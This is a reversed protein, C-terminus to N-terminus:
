RTGRQEPNCAATGPLPVLCRDGSQAGLLDNLLSPLKAAPRVPPTPKPQLQAPRAPTPRPTRISPATPRHLEVPVAGHLRLKDGPHIRDNTLRNLTKLEGVDTRATTAIQSLTQGTRVTHYDPRRHAPPPAVEKEQKAAPTTPPSAPPHPQVDRQQPAQTQAPQSTATSAPHTTPPPSTTPTPTSPTPTQRTASAAASLLRRLRDPAAGATSTQGPSVQGAAPRIDTTAGGASQTHEAASAQGRDQKTTAETQTQRVAQEPDAPPQQTPKPTTTTPKPSPEPPSAPPPAPPTPPQPNADPAPPVSSPGELQSPGADTRLTADIPPTGFQTGTIVVAAVAALGGAAYGATRRNPTRRLERLRAALPITTSLHETTAATESAAESANLGHWPDAPAAAM